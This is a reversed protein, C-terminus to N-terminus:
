GALVYETHGAKLCHHLQWYLIYINDGIINSEADNGEFKAGNNSTKTHNEMHM